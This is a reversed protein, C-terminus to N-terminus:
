LKKRSLQSLMEDELCRLLEARQGTIATRLRSSLVLTRRAREQFLTESFQRYERVWSYLISIDPYIEMAQPLSVKGETFELALEIKRDLYSRVETM